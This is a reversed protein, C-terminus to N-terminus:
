RLILISAPTRRTSPGPNITHHRDPNSRLTSHRIQAPRRINVLARRATKSIPSPGRPSPDLQIRPTTSRNQRRITKSLLSNVQSIDLRPASHRPYRSTRTLRNRILHDLPCQSDNHMRKPIAHHVNLHMNIMTPRM